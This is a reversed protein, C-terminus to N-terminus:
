KLRLVIMIVKFTLFFFFFVLFFPRSLQPVYKLDCLIRSHSESRAM